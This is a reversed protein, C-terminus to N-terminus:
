VSDPDLGLERLKAALRANKEAEQNARATEQNARATEQNARAAEQEARALSQQSLEAGTPILHGTTDCWRLWRSHAINEFGGEWLTVGLGVDPLATDHRRVYRSAQLEFIRLEEDGLFLGPDFVIYYRIGILAYDRLKSGTENGVRNSVIEVVVDPAKGFEWTFYARNRKRWWDTPTEVDLSLFFDPVLAPKHVTWYLGVNACALFQRPQGQEDLAGSWASYLPETLLRQQKASFINDVPTEDETIATEMFAEVEAIVEQMEPSVAYPQSM